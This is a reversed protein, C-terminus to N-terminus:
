TRGFATMLVDLAAASKQKAAEKGSGPVADAAARMQQWVPALKNAARVYKPKGKKAGGAFRTAGDGTANAKWAAADAALLNQVYKGSDLAEQVGNRYKDVNEPKAAEAMPNVTCAQIGAKYKNVALSNAMANAWNDAAENATKIRSVPVSGPM